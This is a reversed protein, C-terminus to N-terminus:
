SRPVKRLRIADVALRANVTSVDRYDDRTRTDRVEIRVRGHLNHVGLSQWGGNNTQQDLWPGAVHEDSAFTSDGNEDAWILYQAHATAWAAPIWAQIEYRGDVSDFEWKAWDDLKDDGDNGIAVTFHFGDNGYGLSDIDEPPKWWTYPDVNDMLDPSDDYIYEPEPETAGTDHGIPVLRIADVALRANVSGVDRYDDRAMTDQIRIDVQGSLDYVGLSQWGTVPQQDLWPGALREDDIWINYQVNATSWRAPIWAQVEYRGDVAGLNWEAWSDVATDNGIALTFHFGNNGYGASDVDAPPKWWNYTGINDHLVPADNVITGRPPPTEEPPEEVDSRPWEIINSYHGGSWTDGQREAGVVVFVESGPYGFLCSRNAPWVSVADDSKYVGRSVGLEEIGNHACALTHPGTGFHEIEIHLWRCHVGTCIGDAGQAGQASDGVRITVTPTPGTRSSQPAMSAPASWKGEGHRNNARVSVEYVIGNTLGTVTTELSRGVPWDRWSADIRRYRLDYDTIGDPRESPPDWRVLLLGDGSTLRPAKPRGPRSELIDCNEDVWEWEARHDCAVYARSNKPADARFDDNAGLSPYSMVAMLREDSISAKIRTVNAKTTPPSLNDDDWPHDWYYFAHGIEHAVTHLYDDNDGHIEATAALAPGGDPAYGATGGMPIPVLLLVNPYGASTKVEDRCPDSMGARVDTYWAGITQSTWDGVDPSLIGGELFVLNSGHMSAEIYGSETRYFPGIYTRLHNVADRLDSEDYILDSRNHGPINYSDDSTPGCYYVWVRVEAVDVPRQSGLAFLPAIEGDGIAFADTRTIARHLFTAMQARSTAAGPCFVTGDRCGKTIGSAALAAVQDYYWAQDSVDSFGPDPGDSLSFARTLFVAMQARTVPDNPCFNTGDGCGTTVGLEATREIFPPWFRPLYRDVDEFRSGKSPDPDEGDLVRVVWVAMTKRDIPQHPCFSRGDSGGSEECDTLVGLQDLAAVPQSYYTDDPVDSFGGTQASVPTAAVALVTVFVLAAIVAAPALRSRRVNKSLVGSNARRRLATHDARRESLTTDTEPRRLENM